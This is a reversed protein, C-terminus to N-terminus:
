EDEEVEEDKKTYLINKSFYGAILYDSMISPKKSPKYNAVAGYLAEFKRGSLKHAYASSLRTLLQKFQEPKTSVVFPNLENLTKDKSEKKSLIYYILQGAAYYYTEDDTIYFMKDEDLRTKIGASITEQICKFQNLITAEEEKKFHDLLCFRLNLAEKYISMDSKYTKKFLCDCIRKTIKDIIPSILQDNGEFWELFADKNLYLINKIEPSLEADENFLHLKNHNLAKNFFVNSMLARLEEITLSRPNLSKIDMYNNLIFHEVNEKSQIVKMDLIKLEASGFKVKLYICPQNEVKIPESKFDYDFPIYIEDSINSKCELWIRIKHVKMCDEFTMRNAILFPATVSKLFPKKAGYTTDISPAGYEVGDIELLTSKDVYLAESFYRSSEQKYLNYDASKYIRIYFKDAKVKTTLAYRKVMNDIEELLKQGNTEFFAKMEAAEKPSDKLQMVRDYYSEINKIASAKNALMDYKFFVTLYNNSHIKKAGPSLSKNSSVYNSIYDYELFKTYLEDTQKVKKETFLHNIIEGSENIEIYLGQKLTYADKVIEDIDGAKEFISILEYIM